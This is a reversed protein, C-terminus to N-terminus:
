SNKTYNPCYDNILRTKAFIEESETDQRRLRKVHGKASCFNKIFCLKDTIEKMSQAKPTTGLLDNGDGLDDLHEGTNDELLNITKCKKNLDTTWKSNIETSPTLDTDPDYKNCTTDRQGLAM